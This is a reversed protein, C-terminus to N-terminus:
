NEVARERVCSQGPGNPQALLKKQDSKIPDSYFVSFDYALRPELGLGESNVTEPTYVPVWGVM